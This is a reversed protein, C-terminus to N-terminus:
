TKQNVVLQVEYYKRDAAVGPGNYGLLRYRGTSEYREANHRIWQDILNRASEIDRDNMEGRLGVTLGLYAEVDTVQVNGDPGQAGVGPNQYLFAMSTMMMGDSTNPSLGIEVPATMPIDNRKIHGFLTLFSVNQEIGQEARVIAM